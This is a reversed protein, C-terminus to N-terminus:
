NGIKGDEPAVMDQHQEPERTQMLPHVIAGQAEVWPHTPGVTGPGLTPLLTPQITGRTQSLRRRETAALCIGLCDELEWALGSGRGQVAMAKGELLVGSALAQVMALIRHDQSSRSLARLLRGQPVPLGRLTSQTHRTSLIRRLRGRAM